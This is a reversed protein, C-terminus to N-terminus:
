QWDLHSNIYKITGKICLIDWEVKSGVWGLYFLSADYEVGKFRVLDLAYVKPERRVEIECSIKM